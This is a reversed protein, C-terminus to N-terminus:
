HIAPAFLVPGKPCGLELRMGERSSKSVQVPLGVAKVLDDLAETHPGLITLRKLTCGKPSTASPHAVEPAWDIFFPADTVPQELGFTSWRLTAGSPTTRSGAMSPTLQFGGDTLKKRLEGEAEGAVAWGIPTPNAFNRLDPFDSPPAAGPQVAIIELYVQEGLSALANHTGIPHKGGHVPRVGTLREFADIARELDAAGLIVHDIHATPM